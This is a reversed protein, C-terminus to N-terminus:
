TTKSDSTTPNASKSWCVGRATVSAGGDDTIDGGTVASSKTVSSASTTTVAPLSVSSASQTTFTVQSGYGTGASNVAYARVYYQTDPALGTIGASFAGTGEGNETKSDGTTPNASTSWCVGRVTVSTGGDDTIYGGTVASSRTVNSASTTTLMPLSDPEPTTYSGAAYTSMHDLVLGITYSTMGPEPVDHRTALVKGGPPYAVDDRTGHVGAVTIDGEPAVYYISPEPGSSPMPVEIKVFM